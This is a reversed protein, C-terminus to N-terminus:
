GAVSWSSMLSNGSIKVPYISLSFSHNSPSSINRAKWKECSQANIGLRHSSTFDRTIDEHFVLYSAAWVKRELLRVNGRGKAGFRPFLGHPVLIQSFRFIFLPFTTAATIFYFLLLPRWYNGPWHAWTQRPDIQGPSPFTLSLFTIGPWILSGRSYVHSKMSWSLSHWTFDWRRGFAFLTSPKVQRSVSIEGIPM